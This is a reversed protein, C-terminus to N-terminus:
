IEENRTYYTNPFVDEHIIWPNKKEKDELTCVLYSGPNGHMTNHMTPLDIHETNMKAWNTFAYEKQTTLDIWEGEVFDEPTVGYTRCTKALTNPWLEGVTGKLIVWEDDAYQPDSMDYSNGELKNKYRETKNSIRGQITYVKKKTMFWEDTSEQLIQKFTRM